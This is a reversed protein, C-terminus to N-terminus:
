KTGNTMNNSNKLEFYLTSNTLIVREKLEDVTEGVFKRFEQTTTSNKLKGYSNEHINELQEFTITQNREM